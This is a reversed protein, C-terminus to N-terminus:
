VPGTPHGSPSVGEPWGVPKGPTLLGLNGSLAPDELLVGLTVSCPGSVRMTVTVPSSSASVAGARAATNVSVSATAWTTTNFRSPTCYRCRRPQAHQDLRVIEGSFFPRSRRNTHWEGFALRTTSPLPSRSCKLRASLMGLFRLHEFSRHM